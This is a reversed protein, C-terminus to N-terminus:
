PSVEARDYKGEPTRQLLGARVSADLAAHVADGPLALATAIEREGRAGPIRTLIDVARAADRAVTRPTGLDLLQQLIPRDIRAVGLFVGRSQPSGGEADPKPEAGRKVDESTVDSGTSSRPITDASPSGAIDDDSVTSVESVDSVGDMSIDLTRQQTVQAALRSPVGHADALRVVDSVSFSWGRERSKDTSRVRKLRLRSAEMGVRTPSAWAAHGRDDQSSAKEILATIATASLTWERTYTDSTDVTDPTDLLADELYGVLARVVAVSHSEGLLEPKEENYRAMVGRVTDELGGTGHRDLLRASAVAARWPEFDRGIVDLEDDLEAWVREAEPLLWLALAWCDDILDRRKAPWRPTNAPDANGRRRDATRVLPIVICRSALVGEPRAIATFARPAFANVWRITWGKNGLPEKLPVESGRRYGSLALERKNPDSTHRNALAEADDFMLAAGAEALDRLAAFSGSSLVVAGLYSTLAWVTGAHTKGSGSNGSFWPYGVVTWAPLFYTSLSLCAALRCMDEQSSLSRDFDIFRDYVSALRQVLAAADPRYGERYAKLAGTSMTAASRPLDPLQVEFGLEELPADGGAGFVRGDDRLVFLRRQNTVKPPNISLIEGTKTLEERTTVRCFLGTAAYARGEILALPRRMVPPPEDLLVVTPAAARPTPRPAEVLAELDQATHGNALYDDVGVKAGNPDSPLYVIRVCAGRRQLHEALRACASRVGLKAAVDSDYVVRVDRGKFAIHDWDAQFTVGGFANAGKFGWVGQLSLACLGHSALADAKKAGETIWLPVRPDALRTRCRPPCDMRVGTGPLNEYKSVKVTGDQSHRTRPRDPRYQYGAALGDPGYLPILLGPVRRQYRKFGLAELDKPNTITRYAREAVVDPSIGSEELLMRRHEPSLPLDDTM